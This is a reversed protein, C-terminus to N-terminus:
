DNRVILLEPADDNTQKRGILERFQWGDSVDYIARIFSVDYARVVVRSETFKTLRDALKVHWAEERQGKGANHTYKQGAILFPPDCYIGHGPVDKCKDLFEFCDLTSFTCRDVFNRHWEELSDIASRFRVNSDGGGANWRLCLGGTFEAPTGASGSRTMWCCIFYALARDFVYEPDNDCEPKWDKLSSSQAHALVDPHFPMGLLRLKLASPVNAVVRCLNMLHRHVDNVVITRAKIHPVECCGGAFPIGVWECGRLAEGVHEALM